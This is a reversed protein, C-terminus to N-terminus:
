AFQFLYTATFNSVEYVRVINNIISSESADTFYDELIDMVRHLFEIVMLPSVSFLTVSNILYIYFFVAHIIADIFSVKM